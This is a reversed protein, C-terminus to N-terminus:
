TLLMGVSRRPIEFLDLPVDFELHQDCYCGDLFSFHPLLYMFRLLSALLELYHELGKSM